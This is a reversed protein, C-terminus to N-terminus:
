AHPDGSRSSTRFRHNCGDSAFRGFAVAMKGREEPSWSVRLTGRRIPFSVRPPSPFGNPRPSPPRLELKRIQPPRQVSENNQRNSPPAKITCALIGHWTLSLSCIAFALSAQFWFLSDVFGAPNGIQGLREKANWGNHDKAYAMDKAPDLIGRDILGQYADKVEVTHYGHAYQRLGLLVFVIVFLNAALVTISVFKRM